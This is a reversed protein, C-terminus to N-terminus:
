GGQLVLRRVGARYVFQAVGFLLLAWVVQWALTRVMEAGSLLGLYVEVPANVIQAFPTLLCFARFGDPMLRLPMIFGSFLQSMGFLARGVGLADPTWFAALNVLFRWSFSIWWGLFLSVAFGLWAVGDPPLAVPYFLRFLLMFVLGRGVLNVLSSGADRGFWHWYFDLPRMLDGAIAGSYVTRMVDWSGFITLFALTAQTVAAYTIAQALNMGNVSGQGQYLATLVMARILGFFLNTALGAWMAVRYVLQRRLGMGILRLLLPLNM